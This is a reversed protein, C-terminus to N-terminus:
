SILNIYFLLLLQIRKMWGTLSEKRYLVTLTKDIYNVAIVRDSKNLIVADPSLLRIFNKFLWCTLCTYKGLCEVRRPILFYYYITIITAILASLRRDGLSM